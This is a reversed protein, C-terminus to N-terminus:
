ARAEAQAPRRLDVFLQRPDTVPQPGERKYGEGWTVGIRAGHLFAAITDEEDLDNRAAFAIANIRVLQHDKGERMLNELADVVPPQAYQRLLVFMEGAESM